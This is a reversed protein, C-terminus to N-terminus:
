YNYLDGAHTQRCTEMGVSVARAFAVGYLRPLHVLFVVLFDTSKRPACGVARIVSGPRQGLRATPHAAAFCWTRSAPIALWSQNAGASPLEDLQDRALGGALLCTAFLPPMGTVLRKLAHLGARWRSSSSCAPASVNRLAVRGTWYRDMRIDTDRGRAM